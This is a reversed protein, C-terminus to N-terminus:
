LRRSSPDRQEIILSMAQIIGGMTKRTRDFSLQLETRAAKESHKLKEIEKELQRIKFEPDIATPQRSLKCAERSFSKRQHTKLNPSM